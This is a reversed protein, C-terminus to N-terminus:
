PSRLILGGSHVLLGLLLFYTCLTGMRNSRTAAFVLYGLSCILYIAMSVNFFTQSAFPLNM